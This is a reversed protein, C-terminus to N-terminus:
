PKSTEPVPTFITDEAWDYVAGGAKSGLWYGGIGGIICGGVGGIATGPGPAVATGGAAGAGGFVECGAWAGAWGTVVESARRIPKSATVISYVDMGVGVVVLLRGGYRFYRSAKYLGEGSSGAPTHNQIKFFANTGKQNWHYDITKTQANYGYDLRLHRNGTADQIFLTSTSGGAPIRGRPKLEIALGNTGPVPIRM